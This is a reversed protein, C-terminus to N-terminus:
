KAEEERDIFWECSEIIQTCCVICTLPDNLNFAINYETRPSYPYGVVCALFSDTLGKGIPCNPCDSYLDSYLRYAKCLPCRVDYPYSTIKGTRYIIGRTKKWLEITDKLVRIAKTMRPRRLVIHGKVNCDNIGILDSYM